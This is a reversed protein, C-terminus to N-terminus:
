VTVSVFEVVPQALECETTIVTFANGAALAPVLADMQLPEEALMPAVDTVPSM